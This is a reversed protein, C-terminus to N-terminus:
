FRIGVHLRFTRPLQYDDEVDPQGFNSGFNYHVGEVPDTTFPNFAEGATVTSNPFRVGSENFVNQVEPQIFLEVSSGGVPIFFSYNIALDTAHIDDTRFQGKRQDVYYNVSNPPTLYGPNTVYPSSNIEWFGSYPTGTAFRELWSVSLNHRRSAIVDWVLYANVRHRQDQALDGTPYNWAEERYEPYDRMWGVSIGNRSNEGDFNGYLHSWTWNGGIMLRNSFRYQFQAHLGSYTRQIIDSDNEYIALDFTEDITAGPAIEVSVDVQGTSDDTRSMYFDGSDRYVYDARIMGKTGLRKLFGISFEQTYPSSLAPVSLNYGALSPAFMYDTNQLGGISAFWDHALQMAETSNYIPDFDGNEDLNVNPGTYWWALTSAEGGGASGGKGADLMAVYQGFSANVIWSGDGKVDWTLGLRPSIRSDDGVTNGSGDQADNQDYRLGINFTWNKNLRWTDNAYISDVTFDTGASIALIPFYIMRAGYAGFAPNYVGDDGYTPDSLIDFRYNTPSQWNNSIFVDNYRDYGVVIDHSGTKGSSLFISGKVLFNENNRQDNGGPCGNCFIHANGMPYSGRWHIIPTGVALDTTYDSGGGVFEFTREAWQAELFFQDSFVGTYNLALLDAPNKRDILVKEETVPLRYYNSETSETTMYSALLRHNIHPAITLKGEYRYQDYGYPFAVNNYTQDQQSTETDRGALFFWLHDKLVYGGFTAEHRQNIKDEQDTTKPTEGNWSENTMRLRYSGSFQNGGSKTVMNIVGGSFRGYEASVGSVMVTTEEVADEVYMDFANGWITDSVVVGNVTMLSQPGTGGAINVADENGANASVAPAMLAITQIDRNVPLQEITEQEFTVSGQSNTTITEYAATVVIEETVTAPHMEADLTRTQAVSIKVEAELPHFGELNFTVDYTGAPLFRFLYDGSAGTVTGQTGGPLADSSIQVLVGPLPGSEDTARGRLTGTPNQAMAPLAIALALGLCM